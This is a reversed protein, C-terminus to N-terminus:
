KHMFNIGFISLFTILMIFVIITLKQIIPSLEVLENEMILIILVQMIGTFVLLISTAMLVFGVISVM